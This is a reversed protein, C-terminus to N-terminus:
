GESSGPRMLMLFLQEGKDKACPTITLTYAKPGSETSLLAKVSVAETLGVLFAPNWGTQPSVAAKSLAFLNANRLHRASNDAWVISGSSTLLCAHLRLMRLLMDPLNACASSTFSERTHATLPSILLYAQEAKAPDSSIGIYLPDASDESSPLLWGQERGSGSELSALGQPLSLGLRRELWDKAQTGPLPLFAHDSSAFRETFRTSFNQFCGKGDLRAMAFPLNSLEVSTGGSQGRRCYEAFFMGFVRAFIAVSAQDAAEKAPPLALFGYEQGKDAIPLYSWGPRQPLSEKAVKEEALAAESLVRFFSGQGGTPLSLYLEFNSQDWFLRLYRQLTAAFIRLSPPNSDNLAGLALFYARQIAALSQDQLRIESHKQRVGLQGLLTTFKEACSARFAEMGDMDLGLEAALSLEFVVLQGPDSDPTYLLESWRTAYILSQTLHSYQAKGEFDHHLRVSEALEFPLGWYLFIDRSLEPHTYGWYALEEAFQGAWPSTVLHRRGLFPPVEERCLELYLPLDKMMAALYAEQAQPPCFRAAIAEAAISSWLTMSWDGFSDEASRNGQPILRKQLSLTIVLKFLESTGIAIAARELSTIKSSFGYSSSNVIHLIKGALMPDMQLYGTIAKFSPVPDLLARLLQVLVPPFALQLGRDFAIDLHNEQGTTM